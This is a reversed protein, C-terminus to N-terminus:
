APPRSMSEEGDGRADRPTATDATPTAPIMRVGISMARVLSIRVGEVCGGRDIKAVSFHRGLQVKGNEMAGAAISWEVNGVNIDADVGRKSRDFNPISGKIVGFIYAIAVKM